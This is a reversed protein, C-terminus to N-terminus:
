IAGPVISAGALKLTAIANGNKVSLVITVITLVVCIFMLLMLIKDFNDTIAPKYLARLYLNNYKVPDFGDIGKFDPKVLGGTASDYDVWIIGMSRYFVTRDTIAISHEEKNKKFKLIDSDISGVAFSDINIDRIKILVLRGMSAKVRFYKWFFGRMLFSIVFFILSIVAGYGLVQALLPNM